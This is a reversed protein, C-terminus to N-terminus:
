VETGHGSSGFKSRREGRDWMLKYIFKIWDVGPFVIRPAHHTAHLYLSDERITLRNQSRSYSKILHHLIANLYLRKRM